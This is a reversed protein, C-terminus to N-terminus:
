GHRQNLFTKFGLFFETLPNSFIREFQVAFGVFIIKMNFYDHYSSCSFTEFQGTEM